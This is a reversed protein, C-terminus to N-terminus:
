IRKKLSEIHESITEEVKLLAVTFGESESKMEKIKKKKDKNSLTPDSEVSAILEDLHFVLDILDDILYTTSASGYGSYTKTLKLNKFVYHMAGDEVKVELTYHFYDNFVGAFPNYGGKTQITGDAEIKQNEEDIELESNSSLLTAWKRGEHFLKNDDGEGFVSGKIVIYGNDDTYFNENQASVGYGFLFLCFVLLVKKM